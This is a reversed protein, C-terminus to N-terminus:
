MQIRLWDRILLKFRDIDDDSLDASHAVVGRLSNLESLIKQMAKQSRITDEFDPWSADLIVILEGFTTYTLPDNSRIAMPTDKEREQREKAEEKVKPPVKTDWWTAGHKEVMRESILARITNEICYYLVYFDAMKQGRMLLESEFLDTDVVDESKISTSRGINIGSKELKLLEKELTLNDM